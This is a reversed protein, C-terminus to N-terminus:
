GTGVVERYDGLFQRSSGGVFMLKRGQCTPDSVGTSFADSPDVLVPRTSKGRKRLEVPRGAGRFCSKVLSFRPIESHFKSSEEQAQPVAWVEFLM